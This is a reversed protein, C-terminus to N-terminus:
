LPLHNSIYLIKKLGAYNRSSLNALSSNIFDLPLNIHLSLDDSEPIPKRNKRFYGNITPVKQSILNSILRSTRDISISPDPHDSGYVFVMPQSHLRCIKEFGKLLSNIKNHEISSTIELIPGLKIGSTNKWSRLTILAYHFEKPPMFVMSFTGDEEPNIYQYPGVLSSQKLMSDSSLEQEEGKEDYFRISILACNVPAEPPTRLAGSLKMIDDSNTRHIHNFPLFLSYGKDTLIVERSHKVFSLTENMDFNDSELSQQIRKLLIESARSEPVKNIHNLALVPRSNKLYYEAITKDFRQDDIRPPFREAFQIATVIDTKGFERTIAVILNNCNLNNARGSSLLPYIKAFDSFVSSPENKCKSEMVSQIHILNVPRKKAFYVAKRLYKQRFM